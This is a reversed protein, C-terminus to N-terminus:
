VASLSIKLYLAPDFLNKPFVSGILTLEPGPSMLAGDSPSLGKM